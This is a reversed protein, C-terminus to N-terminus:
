TVHCPEFGGISGPQRVAGEGIDVPAAPAPQRDVIGAVHAVGQGAEALDHELVLRGALLRPGPQELRGLSVADDGHPEDGALQLGLALESALPRRLVERGAEHRQQEGIDLSRRPQEVLEAVAVGLQEVTHPRDDLAGSGFARSVDDLRPGVLQEGRELM